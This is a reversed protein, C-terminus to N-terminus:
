MYFIIISESGIFFIVCLIALMWYRIDTSRITDLIGNIDQDHLIYYLTISFVIILFLTNLIVKRKNMM